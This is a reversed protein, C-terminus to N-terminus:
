PLYRVSVLGPESRVEVREAGLRAARALTEEDDLVDTVAADTREEPVTLVHVEGEGAREHRTVDGVDQEAALDRALTTPSEQSEATEVTRRDTVSEITWTVAMPPEAALTAELVEHVSLDAPEGLTHVEADDVDRLVASAEDVHTVLFTGTETRGDGDGDAAM